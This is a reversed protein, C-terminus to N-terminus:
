EKYEDVEIDMYEHEDYIKKAIIQVVQSDDDYAITTLSDLLMRVLKDLDSKVTMYPRKKASVSKPRVFAFTVEIKVAKGKYNIGGNNQYETVIAQRTEYLSESKAHTIVARQKGGKTNVIFSKVSGQPTGKCNVRFRVM